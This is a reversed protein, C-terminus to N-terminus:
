KVPVEVDTNQEIKEEEYPTVVRRVLEFITLTLTGIVLALRWYKIGKRNIFTRSIVHVIYNIAGAFNEDSLSALYSAVQRLGIQEEIEDRLDQKLYPM